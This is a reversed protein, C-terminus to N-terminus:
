RPPSSLFLASCNGKKKEGGRKKRGRSEEGKRVRENRCHENQKCECHNYGFCLTFVPKWRKKGRKKGEGIEKSRRLGRRGRPAHCKMRHVLAPLRYGQPHPPAYAPPPALPALTDKPPTNPSSPQPRHHLPVAEELVVVVVGVTAVAEPVTSHEVTATVIFFHNKSRSYNILEITM